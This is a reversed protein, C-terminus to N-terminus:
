GALGNATFAHTQAPYRVALPGFILTLLDDGGCEDILDALDRLCGDRRRVRGLATKAVLLVPLDGAGGIPTLAEAAEQMRERRGPRAEVLQVVSWGGAAFELARPSIASGAAQANRSLPEAYSGIPLFRAVLPALARDYLVVNAGALAGRDLPCIAAASRQEILWIEGPQVTPEERSQWDKCMEETGWLREDGRDDIFALEMEPM